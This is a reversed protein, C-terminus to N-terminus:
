RRALGDDAIDATTKLGARNDFDAALPRRDHMVLWLRLLHRKLDPEDYDEFAGRSHAVAYNNVLVIDGQELRFRVHISPDQALLDVM